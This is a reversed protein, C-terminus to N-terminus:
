GLLALAQEVTYGQALAAHVTAEKSMARNVGYAGLGVTGLGAGAVTLGPAIAGLGALRAQGATAPGVAEQPTIGFM